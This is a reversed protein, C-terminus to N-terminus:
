WIWKWHLVTRIKELDKSITHGFGHQMETTPTRQPAKLLTAPYEASICKRLHQSNAISFCGHEPNAKCNVYEAKMISIMESQFRQTEWFEHTVGTALLLPNLDQVESEIRILLKTRKKPIAKLANCIKCTIVPEIGGDFHDACSEYNSWISLPEVTDPCINTDGHVALGDKWRSQIHPRSKINPTSNRAALNDTADNKEHVNYCVRIRSVNADPQLNSVLAWTALAMETSPTSHLHDESHTRSAVPANGSISAQVSLSQVQVNSEAILHHGHKWTLIITTRRSVIPSPLNGWNSGKMKRIWDSRLTRMLHWNPLTCQAQKFVTNCAHKATSVYLAILPQLQKLRIPFVSSASYIKIYATISTSFIYLIVFHFSYKQHILITHYM